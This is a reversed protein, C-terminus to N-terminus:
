LTHKFHTWSFKKWKNRDEKPPPPPPTTPKKPDGPGPFETDGEVDIDSGAEGKFVRKVKEDHIYKKFEDIPDDTIGEEKVSSEGPVEFIYEWAINNVSVKAEYIGAIDVTALPMDHKDKDLEVRWGRKKMDKALVNMEHFEFDGRAATHLVIGRLANTNIMVSARRIVAALKRPGIKGNDVANAYFRLLKSLSGPDMFAQRGFIEDAPTGHRVFDIIFQSPNDTVISDADSEDEYAHIDVSFQVVKLKLHLDYSESEGRYKIDVGDETPTLDWENGKFYNLVDEFSVVVAIRQM